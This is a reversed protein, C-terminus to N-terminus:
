SLQKGANTDLLQQEKQLTENQELVIKKLELEINCNSVSVSLMKISLTMQGFTIISFTM